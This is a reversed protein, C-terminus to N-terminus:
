PPAPAAPAPAPAAPAPRPAFDRRMALFAAGAVAATAVACLAGYGARQTILGGIAVGVTGAAATAANLLGVGEGRRAPNLTVALTNAAVALLPWTLQMLAFAGMVIWAAGIRGALAAATMVALIVIRLGLGTRLVAAASRRAEWRAAVRYLPLSLGLGGAYALSPLVAPMGYERVMAVALLVSVAITASLSLVWLGLFPALGDDSAGRVERWLARLAHGGSFHFHRRTAATEGGVVPRAPAHRRRVDPTRLANPPHPRARPATRGGLAAGGALLFGAAVFAWVPEAALLGAALLGAIQGGSIFAQLTGIRTDWEPEPSSELIFMTGVTTAAIAGFGALAALLLRAGPVAPGVLPLLLFAPAALGLGGALLLRQQGRRDSWRGLWPALLGTLTFVSYTIGPNGGPAALLPLLVPAFGSQVAGLAAYTFYWPQPGLPPPAPPGARPYPPRPPAGDPATGGAAPEHTSNM